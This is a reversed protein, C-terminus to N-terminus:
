KNQLGVTPLPSIPDSPLDSNTEIFNLVLRSFEEPKELYM